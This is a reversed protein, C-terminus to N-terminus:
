ETSFMLRCRHIISSAGLSSGLVLLEVSSGLSCIRLSICLKPMSAILVLSTLKPSSKTRNHFIHDFLVPNYGSNNPRPCTISKANPGRPKQKRTGVGGIGVSLTLLYFLGMINLVINMSFQTSGLM